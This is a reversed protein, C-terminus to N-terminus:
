SRRRLVALAGVVIIAGTGIVVWPVHAVGPTGRQLYLIGGLGAVAALAAALLAPAANRRGTVHGAAIQTAVQIEEDSVDPNRQQFEAIVLALKQGLEQARPSATEEPVHPVIM